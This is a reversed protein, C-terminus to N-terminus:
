KKNKAGLIANFIDRYTSIKNINNMKQNNGDFKKISNFYYVLGLASRIGLLRKMITIEIVPSTQILLSNRSIFKRKKLLNIIINKKEYFIIDIGKFINELYQMEKAIFILVNIRTATQLILEKQLIIDGMGGHLIFICQDFEYKEVPRSLQSRIVNILIRLYYDIKRIHYNIIIYKKIRLLIM